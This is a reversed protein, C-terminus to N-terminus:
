KVFKWCLWIWVFISALFHCVVQGMVCAFGFVSDAKLKVKFNFIRYMVANVFLWGGGLYMLWNMM